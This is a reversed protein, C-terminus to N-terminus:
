QDCESKKLLNLFCKTGFIISVILVATICVYKVINAVNVEVVVSNNTNVPQNNEKCM